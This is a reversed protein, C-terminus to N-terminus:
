IRYVRTVGVARGEVGGGTGLLNTFNFNGGIMLKDSAKFQVGLLFPIVYFDSFGDFPALLGTGAYASVKSDIAYWYWFPLDILDPGGDGPTGSGRETVQFYIRPDFVISMKEDIAYRGLVGIRLGIEFPDFNLIDIAPHLAVSLKDASLSYLGEFSANNYFRGCGNSEGTFCIGNGPFLVRPSWPTTGLDHSLGLTLKKDVGYWLSPALSVPKFAGNESLNIEITQGAIVLAGASLTLGGGVSTTPAPIPAPPTPPAADEAVAPTAALSAAAVWVYKSTMGFDYSAVSRGVL